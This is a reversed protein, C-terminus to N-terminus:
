SMVYCGMRRNYTKMERRTEVDYAEIELNAMQMIQELCQQM